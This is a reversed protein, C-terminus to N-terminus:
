YTHFLQEPKTCHICLECDDDRILIFATSPTGKSVNWNNSIESSFDFEVIFLEDFELVSDHVITFNNFTSKRAPSFVFDNSSQLVDTRSVEANLLYSCSQHPNM